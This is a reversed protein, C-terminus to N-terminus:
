YYLIFTIINSVANNVIDNFTLFITHYPPRSGIYFICDTTDYKGLHSAYLDYTSAISQGVINFTYVIYYPPHAVSLGKAQFSAM